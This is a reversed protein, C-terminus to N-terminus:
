EEEPWFAVKYWLEANEKAEGAPMQAITQQIAEAAQTETFRNRSILRGVPSDPLGAEQALEDVQDLTVNVQCPRPDEVSCEQDYELEGAGNTTAPQASYGAGGILATIDALEDQQVTLLGVPRGNKLIVARDIEGTEIVEQESAAMAIVEKTKEKTHALSFPHSLVAPPFLVCADNPLIQCDCVTVSPPSHLALICRGPLPLRLLGGEFFFLLGFLFATSVTSVFVYWLIMGAVYM